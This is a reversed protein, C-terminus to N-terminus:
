MEMMMSAERMSVLEPKRRPDGPFSYSNSNAAQPSFVQISNLIDKYSKLATSESIQPTPSIQSRIWTPLITIGYFNIMTIDLIKAQQSFKITDIPSRSIMTHLTIISDMPSYRDLKKCHRQCSPSYKIRNLKLHWQM